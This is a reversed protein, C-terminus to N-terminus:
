NLSPKRRLRYWKEDPRLIVELLKPLSFYSPEVDTIEWGPFAAEVESRYAGRILPRIRRPWVLLLMIADAASVATVERGLAIQEQPQLGHFTGTDLIFRFGDGIGARRLATVDGRVLKMEVGASRVRDRARRLAKEVLDVGTVQWGRKALEVGWIGSGTGLDLARGYPPHRGREERDFMQAAKGVFPPDAAADEWPHFGIAFALRYNM